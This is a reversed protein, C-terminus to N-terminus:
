LRELADSSGRCLTAKWLVAPSATGVVAKATSQSLLGRTKHTRALPAFGRVVYVGIVFLLVGADALLYLNPIAIGLFFM